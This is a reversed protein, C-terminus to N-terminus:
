RLSSEDDNNDDDDNSTRMKLPWRIPREDGCDVDQDDDTVLTWACRRRYMYRWWQEDANGNEDNTRATKAACM